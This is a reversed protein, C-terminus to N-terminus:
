TCASHNSVEGDVLVLHDHTRGRAEHNVFRSVVTLCISFASAVIAQRRFLMLLGHRTAAVPSMVM